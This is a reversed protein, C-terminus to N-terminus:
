LNSSLFDALDQSSKAYDRSDYLFTQWGRARPVVLNKERNDIFLIDSPKVGAKLEALDYIEPMPKKVKEISSNVIVDWGLQPILGRRFIEELMGPYIDTLLGLKCSKKALEMIPWIGRNEYFHDIFYKQMSFDSGIPLHFKNILKPVLEDVHHHGMCVEIEFADYMEDFAPIDEKRVGMDAMMHQWKDSDSFDQIAVGGVDFYVFSIHSM